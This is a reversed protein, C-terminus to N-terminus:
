HNGTEREHKTNWGKDLFDWKMLSRSSISAMALFVLADWLSVQLGVAQRGDHDFLDGAHLKTSTRDLARYLSLAAHFKGTNIIHTIDALCVEKLIASERPKRARCFVSAHSTHREQPGQLPLENGVRAM